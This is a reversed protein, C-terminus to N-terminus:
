IYIYIYIDLTCNYIYIIYIYIYIDLYIISAFSKKERLTEYRSFYEVHYKYKLLTDYMNTRCIEHVPELLSNHYVTDSDPSVTESSCIRCLHVSVNATYVCVHTIVALM